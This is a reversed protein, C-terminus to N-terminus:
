ELSLYKKKPNQLNKQLLLTYAIFGSPVHDKKTGYIEAMHGIIQLLYFVKERDQKVQRKM